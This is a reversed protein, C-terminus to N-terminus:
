AEPTARAGDAGEQGCGVEVGGNVQGFQRRRRRVLDVKDPVDFRNELDGTQFTMPRLFRLASEAEVAALRDQASALIALVDNGVVARVAREDM